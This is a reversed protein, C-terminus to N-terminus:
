LTDGAHVACRLGHWQAPWQSAQLWAYRSLRGLAPSRLQLLVADGADWRLTLEVVFAASGDPCYWWAQGDWSLAGPPLAERRWAWCALSVMLTWVGAILSLRSPTAGFYWSAGLAAAATAIALLGLLRGGWVFRGVPVLVPPASRM